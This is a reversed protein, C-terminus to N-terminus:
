ASVECTDLAAKIADHSVTNRMRQLVSWTGAPVSRHGGRMFGLSLERWARDGHKAKFARLATLQEDTLKNV